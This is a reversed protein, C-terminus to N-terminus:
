ASLGLARRVIVNAKAAHDDATTLPGAPAGNALALGAHAAALELLHDAFVPNRALVPGRIGTGYATGRVAGEFRAAGSQVTGINGTGSAVTGLPREDEGLVYDRLHYEYGTLAGWESDVSIRGVHRESAVSRGTFIGIGSLPDPRGLELSRSLMEWGLGIALLVTGSEVWANLEDAIERLGALVEPADADFGAGITIADPRLGSADQASTITTVRAEIGRWGARVRLVDANEADGHINLREPFLSVISLVDSM